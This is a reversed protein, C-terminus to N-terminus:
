DRLLTENLQNRRAITAPTPRQRSLDNAEAIIAHPSRKITM